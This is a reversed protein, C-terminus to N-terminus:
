LISGEKAEFIQDIHYRGLTMFVASGRRVEVLIYLGTEPSFLLMHFFRKRIGIFRICQYGDNLYMELTEMSDEDLILALSDFNIELQGNEAVTYLESTEKKEM